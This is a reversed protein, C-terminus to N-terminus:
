LLCGISTERECQDRERERMLLYIRLHPNSFFFYSVLTFPLCINVRDFTCCYHWVENYFFLIVIKFFTYISLIKKILNKIYPIQVRDTVSAYRCWNNKPWVTSLNMKLNVAGLWQALERYRSLREEWHSSDAIVVEALEVTTNIM